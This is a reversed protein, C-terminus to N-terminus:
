SVRHLRNANLVVLVSSASMGLAAMWPEIIGAVAMPIVVLNYVVAWTMNERIVRRVKRAFSIALPIRELNAHLLTADAAEQVM